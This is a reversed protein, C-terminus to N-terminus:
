MSKVHGDEANLYETSILLEIWYRSERAEKSTISMKAIFDKISQAAQSENVNAGISTGSRLLQKSLVYEKKQNCLYKYLNVVRVAFDFSKDLIINKGSM